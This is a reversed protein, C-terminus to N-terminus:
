QASTKRQTETPSFDSGVHASPPKRVSVILEIPLSEIREALGRPVVPATADAEGLEAELQKIDQALELNETSLQALSIREPPLRELRRLMRKYVVAAQRHREARAGLDLFTQVTALITAVLGLIGGVVALKTGEAAPSRWAAFASSGAAAAFVATPLGLIYSFSQLRRATQEHIMRRRIVHLQWGRLLEDTRTPDFIRVRSEVTGEM